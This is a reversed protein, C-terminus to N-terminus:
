ISDLSNLKSSFNEATYNIISIIQQYPMRRPGIIGLTGVPKDKIRYAATILTCGKMEDRQNESGIAINIDGLNITQSLIEAIIKEEELLEMMVKINKVDKSESFDLLHSTGKLIVEQGQRDLLQQSEKGISVLLERQPDNKGVDELIEEMQEMSKGQLRDNLMITIRDLEEPSTPRSLEVTKHTISGTTSLMFLLVSTPSIPLLKLYRFLSKRLQPALLMSTYNTLNSLLTATKELLLELQLKITHYERNIRDAAERPPPAIKNKIIDNVFMRYASDMPIRGSAAHPQELFGMEELFAMENRVTASSCNIDYKDTIVSSSVPEGTRVFEHIIVELITKQRQTLGPLDRNM